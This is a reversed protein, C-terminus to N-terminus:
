NAVEYFLRVIINESQMLPLTFILELGSAISAITQKLKLLLLPRHVICVPCRGLPPLFCPLSWLEVYSGDPESSLCAPIPERAVKGRPRVKFTSRLGHFRYRGNWLFM